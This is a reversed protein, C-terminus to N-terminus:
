GDVAFSLVVAIFSFLRLKRVAAASEAGVASMPLEAGGSGDKEDVPLYLAANEGIRAFLLDIKSLSCKRM